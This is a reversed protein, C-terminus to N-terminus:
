KAHTPTTRNKAEPWLDFETPWYDHSSSVKWIKSPVNPTEASTQDWNEKIATLRAQVETRPREAVAGLEALDRRISGYQRAAYEHERTRDDYRLFIQLGALIASIM